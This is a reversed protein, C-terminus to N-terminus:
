DAFVEDRLIRYTRATAYKEEVTKRGLRGMSVRLQPDDILASLKVYWDEDSGALYGNVGDEIVYNNEGVASCVVPVQAAMYLLAKSACKGKELDGNFLPMVGIDFEAIASAIAKPDIPPLLKLEVGSFVSKLEGLQEIHGILTFQLLGPYRAALKSFPKQLVALYKLNTTTGVWGINILTNERSAGPREYLPFYQLPVPTPLLIVRKNLPQVYDLL